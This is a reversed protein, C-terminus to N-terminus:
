TTKLNRLKIKCRLKKLTKKQSNKCVVDFETQLHEKEHNRPIWRVRGGNKPNGAAPVEAVFNEWNWEKFTWNRREASLAWSKNDNLTKTIKGAVRSAKQDNQCKWPSRGWSEQVHRHFGVENEYDADKGEKESTEPLDREDELREKWNTRVNKL